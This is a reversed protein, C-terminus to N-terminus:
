SCVGDIRTLRDILEETINHKGKYKQLIKRFEDVGAQSLFLKFDDISNSCAEIDEKYFRNAEIEHKIVDDDFLSLLTNIDEKFQKQQQEPDIVQQQDNQNNTPDEEDQLRTAIMDNYQADDM